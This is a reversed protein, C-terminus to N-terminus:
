SCARLRVYGAFACINDSITSGILEATLATDAGRRVDLRMGMSRGARGRESVGVKRVFDFVRCSIGHRM